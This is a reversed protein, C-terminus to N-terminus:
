AVRNAILLAAPLDKKSSSSRIGLGILHDTDTGDKYSWADVGLPQGQFTYHFSLRLPKVTIAACLFPTGSEDTIL